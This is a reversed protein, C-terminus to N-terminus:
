DGVYSGDNIEEMWSLFSLQTILSRLPTQPPSPPYEEKPPTRPPHMELFGVCLKYKSRAAPRLQLQYTDRVSYLCDLIRAYSQNTDTSWQWTNHATWLADHTTQLVPPLEQTNSQIGRFILRNTLDYLYEGLLANSMESLSMIDM